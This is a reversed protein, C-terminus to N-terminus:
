DEEEEEAAKKKKKKRAAEEEEAEEMGEKFSRSSKKFMRTLKPIQTPGLVLLVIALIVLLETTGLKM